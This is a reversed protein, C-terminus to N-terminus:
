TWAVFSSVQAKSIGRPPSASRVPQELVSQAKQIQLKSNNINIEQIHIAKEMATIASVLPKIQGNVLQHLDSRTPRENLDSCLDNLDIVNAKMNGVIQLDSRTAVDKMEAKLEAIQGMLSPIVEEGIRRTSSALELERSQDAKM